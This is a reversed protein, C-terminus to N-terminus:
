SGLAAHVHSTQWLFIGLISRYLSIYVVLLETKVFRGRGMQSGFRILEDRGSVIGGSGVHWQDCSM